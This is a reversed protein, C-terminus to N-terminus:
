KIRQFTHLLTFSDNGVRYLIVEQVKAARVFASTKFVTILLTFIQCTSKTKRLTQKVRTFRGSCLACVAFTHPV